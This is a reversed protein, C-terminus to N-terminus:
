WASQSAAHIQSRTRSMAPTRSLFEGRFIQRPRENM